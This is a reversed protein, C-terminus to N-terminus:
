LLGPLIQEIFERDAEFSPRLELFEEGTVWRAESVEGAQPVIARDDTPRASWWHLTFLGDQTPCEWVKAIPVVELGLEEAMERVVAESQTEGAELRGSPPAWYGPFVVAPGRRIAVFRAGRLVVGVIADKM